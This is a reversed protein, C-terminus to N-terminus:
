VISNRYEKPTKGTYKKFVKSFYQVDMIGCSLAVTQVQLSTTVLLRSALKMREDLIYETLNKGTERKFLTSLYGPSVNQSDALATLTLSASLDSNILTIVKRIIPSYSKMSYKRVLRCYGTFMEGMFETASSVSSLKEIRIAYGSSVDNIYLPHVGGREAAKRLLTNMIICYNKINRVPDSLRREMVTEEFAPTIRFVKHEQGLEVARILENEFDYRKQMLEMNAMLSAVNEESREKALSPAPRERRIDIVTFAESGGCLREGFTEIMTFVPNASELFTIGAFYDQVLRQRSVPIGYKECIEMAKKKDIPASLYPGIIMARDETEEPLVFCLFSLGLVDQVAYLKYREPLGYLEAFSDSYGLEFGFINNFTDDFMTKYVDSLACFRVDIHLKKLTDCLFRLESEYFM